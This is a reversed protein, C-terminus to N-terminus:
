KNCSYFWTTRGNYFTTLNKLESLGDFRWESFDWFIYLRLKFSSLLDLSSPNYKRTCWNVSAFLFVLPKDEGIVTWGLLHTFTTQLFEPPGPLKSQVEEYM